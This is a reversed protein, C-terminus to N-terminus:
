NNCTVLIPTLSTQGAQITGTAGSTVSCAVDASSAAPTPTGSGQVSVTYTIAQTVVPATALFTTALTTPVGQGPAGGNGNHFPNTYLSKSAIGNSLVLNVGPNCDGCTTTFSNSWNITIPASLSAMSLTRTLALTGVVTGNVSVTGTGTAFSGVVSTTSGGTSVNNSFAGSSPTWSGSITASGQELVNGVLSGNAEAFIALTGSPPNNATGASNPTLVGFWVGVYPNQSGPSAQTMSATFATGSGSTIQVCGPCSPPIAALNARTLTAIATGGGSGGSANLSISGDSNVTWTGSIPQVGGGGGSGGLGEVTGNALFQLTAGGSGPANDLITWTSNAYQPNAAASTASQTAANMSNVATSASVLTVGTIGANALAQQLGNIVAVIGGNQFLANLQQQLASNTPMALLGDPVASSVAGLTQLLQAIRTANPANTTTAATGSSVEGTITVPTVVGNGPIAVPSGLSVGLVSFAITDGTHYAFSGDSATTGTLGSSTTYSAGAVPADVFYGTATSGAPTGGGGGSGGGGGGGCAALVTLLAWSAAIRALKRTHM